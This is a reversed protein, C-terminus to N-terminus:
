FTNANHKKRVNRRYPLLVLFIWTFLLGLSSLMEGGMIHGFKFFLGVALLLLGLFGLTNSIIYINAVKSATNKGIFLPLCFLSIVSGVLLAFCALIFLLMGLWQLHLFNVVVTTIFALLALYFFNKGVKKM